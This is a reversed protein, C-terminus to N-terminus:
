GTSGAGPASGPSGEGSWGRGNGWPPCQSRWTNMRLNISSANMRTNMCENMWEKMWENKRENM